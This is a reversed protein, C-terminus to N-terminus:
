MSDDHAHDRAVRAWHEDDAQAASKHTSHENRRHVQEHPLWESEKQPIVVELGDPCNPNASGEFHYITCRRMVAADTDEGFYKNGDMNTTFIRPCGAPIVKCMYLIRIGSDDEMDTIHIQRERTWKHARCDDFVIGDHTKPYDLDALQDIGRVLLPSKFHAKAFCTKGINSRGYMIWVTSWDTIPRHDPFDELTYKNKAIPVHLMKQWYDLQRGHRVCVESYTEAVESRSAGEKLAKICLALQTGKAKHVPVTGWTRHAELKSDGKSCYDINQQATGKAVATRWQGSPFVSLVTTMRVRVKFQVYLQWHETGTDPCREKQAIMYSIKDQHETYIDDPDKAGKDIWGTQCYNKTKSDLVFCFLQYM